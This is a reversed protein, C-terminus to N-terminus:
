LRTERAVARMPESATLPVSLRDIAYSATEGGLTVSVCDYPELAPNVVSPWSLVEAGGKVRALITAAATTCLAATTLLPSSYFYPVKGYSGLYYTPSLPDDDWAEGRVPTTVDSGEGSAIVGNYVAELSGALEGGLVLATEGEGFDFVASSPNVVSARAVGDGRFNLAYGFDSFMARAQAWPDSDAGQEFVVKAGLTGSVDSFDTECSPWRDTLLAAGATALTTGSAITYPDIFRSARIKKARDSGSWAVAGAADLQIRATDTSFVGLPVYEPEGDVYLGREVILETAPSMLLEYVEAATMDDTPVLTLDCARTVARRSEMTVAGGTIALEVGSVTRVRVAMRMSPAALAALFGTSVAYM